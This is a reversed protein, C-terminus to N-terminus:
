SLTLAGHDSRVLTPVGYAYHHFHEIAEVVALIEAIDAFGRMFRRYYSCLGFYSRLEKVSKPSPWIEVLETKSPATAIRDASVIYGLYKLRKQFM